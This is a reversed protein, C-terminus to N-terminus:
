DLYKDYGQKKFYQMVAYYEDIEKATHNNPNTMYDSPYWTVMQIKDGFVEQLLTERSFIDMLETEKMDHGVPETIINSKTCAYIFSKLEYRSRWYGWEWIDSIPYYKEYKYENDNIYCSILVVVKQSKNDNKNNLSDSKIFKISVYSYKEKLEKAFLILRGINKYYERDTYVKSSRGYLWEKQIGFRNCTWNILEKDLINLISDHNKFDVLRFDFKKDVFLYIENVPIGHMKYIYIFRELLVNIEDFTEIKKNRSNYDKTHVELNEKKVIHEIEIAQHNYRRKKKNSTLKIISWITSLLGGLFVVLVGSFIDSDKLKGLLYNSISSWEMFLMWELKNSYDKM